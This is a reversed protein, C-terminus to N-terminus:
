GHRLRVLRYGGTVIDVLLPDLAAGTAVRPGLWQQLSSDYVTLEYEREAELPARVTVATPHYHENGLCIMIEGPRQFALHHVAYDDVWVRGTIDTQYRELPGDTDLDGDTLLCLANGQRAAFWTVTDGAFPLQQIGIWMWDPALRPNVTLRSGEVAVGCLGEVAAWLFRPPEWPSLRMGRNVMSEGDFWESFQGPVTNNKIPDVNYQRYSARLANIHFSSHYRASAYACWWTVGPWVGGLLGDYGYPAYRLDTRPVTRIGSANSFDPRNLRSIIRYGTEKGAIGFMVPFVEDSSVDTNPNGEMDINLYYLGNAPNYLHRNIAAKLKEGERRLEAAEPRGLEAAMEALALLAAAAESNVETVAGNIQYGPIINRWGTIGYVGTGPARSFVLGQGDEQSVLSRAAKLAAPYLREALPRDRTLRWHHAVALIFLPTNDNINLGYDCTSGDVANWYEVILGSPKQYAAIQELLARSFDPRFYDCGYVFWASDRVVVHSSCGPDNTFAWGQPYRAMVRVMDVKSWLVGDNIVTDPSIVDCACFITALHDITRSLLDPALSGRYQSVAEEKGHACFSLAFTIERSEGPPLAVEVELLGIPNGTAGTPQEAPLLQLPESAQSADRTVQWRTPAVSAGFVRVWEPHSRNHTILAGIEDDWCTHLDHSTAGCLDAFALIAVRRVDAGRNALRARAVAVPWQEESSYPVFVTEEADLGRRLRFQHSWYAPHLIVSGTFEQQLLLRSRPRRSISPPADPLLESEGGEVYRLAITGVVTRAIDVSYLCEIDGTGKTNLWCRPNGFSPGMQLQSDAVRYAPLGGPTLPRAVLGQDDNM